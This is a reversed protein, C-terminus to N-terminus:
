RRASRGNPRFGLKGPNFLDDPDIAQKIARMMRVGESGHELELFRAKKYGIGHEGTCTGEMAIARRVLRDYFDSARTMEGPDEGDVLIALHFNGDGIHGVLPAILGAEAADRQTESVCEVLRSVPVCVDTSIVQAGPRLARAADLTRHRAEWLRRRQTEDEAWAFELAGHETALDHVQRALAGTEAASGHFEFLLMSRSPLAIGSHRNLADVQQEDLLEMRAVPLGYQLVSVACAVAAQLTSFTCRAARMTEPTPHLRLTVEAIIGLTGESGVYLRTLDYGAASKRARSSTRLVEGGPTVVTLSLVNERMGGYRVTTTGSARTAVMGGITADAGPDVPFFVGESRVRRELQLRTVGAQVTVDMDEVSLRLMSSMQTMDVSVGGALPVIQGELSTGAGFPVLPLSHRRCVEVIQVIEATDTPYVVADPTGPAGGLEDAGHRALEAPTRLVRGPGLAQELETLAAARRATDEVM